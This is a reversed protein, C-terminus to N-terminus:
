PAPNRRRCRQPQGQRTARGQANPRHHPNPSRAQHFPSRHHHRLSHHPLRLNPLHPLHKANQREMVNTFSFCSKRLQKELKPSPPSEDFISSYCLTLDRSLDANNTSGTLSKATPPTAASPTACYNASEPTTTRM